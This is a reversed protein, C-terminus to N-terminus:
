PRVEGAGLEALLNQTFRDGMRGIVVDMATTVLPGARRPAPLVASIEVTISLETGRDHPRLTYSGNAGAREATGDEPEHSFVIREQADFSMRETFSASFRGGPYPIAGLHWRWRGDGLDHVRQVFPTFDAVLEPRVLLDWVRGREADIVATSTRGTTFTTM